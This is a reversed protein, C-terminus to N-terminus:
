KVFDYKFVRIRIRKSMPHQTNISSVHERVFTLNQLSINLKRTIEDWAKKGQLNWVM